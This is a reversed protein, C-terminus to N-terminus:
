CDDSYCGMYPDFGMELADQNEYHPDLSCNSPCNFECCVDCEGNCDLEFMDDVTTGYEDM